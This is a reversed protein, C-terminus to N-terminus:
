EEKLNVDPAEEDSSDNDDDNGCTTTPKVTIRKTRFLHRMYLRIYAYIIISKSRVARYSVLLLLVFLIFLSSYFTM